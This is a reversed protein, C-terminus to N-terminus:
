SEPNSSKKEETNQSNILEISLHEKKNISRPTVKLFQTANNKEDCTFACCSICDKLNWCCICCICIITYKFM